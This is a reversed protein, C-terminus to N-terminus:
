DWENRLNDITKDIDSVSKYLGSNKNTGILELISSKQADKRDTIAQPILVVNGDEVSVELTDGEQINAAKRVATPLTVQYKQKVRVLPMTEAM